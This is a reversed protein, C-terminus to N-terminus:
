CNVPHLGYMKYQESWLVYFGAVQKELLAERPHLVEELFKKFDEPSHEDEVERHMHTLNILEQLIKETM